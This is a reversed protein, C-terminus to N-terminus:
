QDAYVVVPEVWEVDSRGQLRRTLRVFDAPTRAVVIYINPATLRALGPYSSADPWDTVQLGGKLKFSIEGTIFGRVQMAHNFVVGLQKVGIPASQSTAFVRHTKGEGSASSERAARLTALVELRSGRDDIVMTEDAVEQVARPAPKLQAYCAASMLIILAPVKLRYM